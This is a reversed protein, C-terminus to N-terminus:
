VYLAGYMDCLGYVYELSQKKWTPFRKDLFEKLGPYYSELTNVHAEM